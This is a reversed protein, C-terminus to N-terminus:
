QSPTLLRRGSGCALYVLMGTISVGATLYLPSAYNGTREVLVGTIYVGVIGPVTAITNSMGWLVGAYEPAIDMANPAFGAYGLAFCATVCCALALATGATGAHALLVLGLAGGGFSLGQMLKRVRVPEVGRALLRDAVAGSINGMLFSVLWPVASLLGADTLGVGYSRKFFSPLWSLFLYLTWNSAFHAVFIAWVAPASLLTRWPIAARRIAPSSRPGHAPVGLFWVAAWVLGVAGFAYFPTPWGHKQVLAGSVALSFVTGCSLASLCLAIARSRQVPPVWQAILNMMSPFVAAEGLGLAIRATLLAPLSLVAAAPTLLTFVSWWVVAVGLVLHGGRRTALVGSPTMFLLYGVFFCALVLGKRSETWGFQQQMAIAAVSINTRDIYSIFIAAFLLLVVARAM